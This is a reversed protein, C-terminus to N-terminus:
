LELTLQTSPATVLTTAPLVDLEDLVPTVSAAAPRTEDIVSTAALVYYGRSFTGASTRTQRADILGCRRLLALARHVTNKALGLDVALGRISVEVIREGREGVASRARLVELVAWATPGLRRVPAAVSENVIRAAAGSPGAM